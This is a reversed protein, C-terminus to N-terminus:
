SPRDIRPVFKACGDLIYYLISIKDITVYYHVELFGRSKWCTHNELNQIQLPDLGHYNYPYETTVVVSKDISVAHITPWFMPLHFVTIEPVTCSKVLASRLRHVPAISSSVPWVALMSLATTGHVIYSRKNSRYLRGSSWLGSARM